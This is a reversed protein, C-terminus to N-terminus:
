INKEATCQKYFMIIFDSMKDQPLCMYLVTKIHANKLDLMSFVFVVKWCCVIFTPFLVIMLEHLLHNRLSIDFSSNYSRQSFM